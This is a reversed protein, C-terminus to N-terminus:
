SGGWSTPARALAVKFESDLQQRPRAGGMLALAGRTVGAAGGIV